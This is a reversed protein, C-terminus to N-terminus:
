GSQTILKADDQGTPHNDRNLRAKGLLLCGINRRGRRNTCGNQVLLCSVRESGHNSALDIVNVLQSLTSIPVGQFFARERWIIHGANQKGGPGCALGLADHEGM